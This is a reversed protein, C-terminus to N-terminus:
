STNTQHELLVLRQVADASVAMMLMFMIVAIFVRQGNKM